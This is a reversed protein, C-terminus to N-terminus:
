FLCDEMAEKIDFLYSMRVFGEMIEITPQTPTLGLCDTLKPYPMLPLGGEEGSGSVMQKIIKSLLDNYYQEEGKVENSGKFVKLHEFKVDADKILVFIRKLLENYGFQMQFFGSNQFYFSRWNKWNKNNEFDWVLDDNVFVGCGFGFSYELRNRERFNVQSVKLNDLKGQMFNKSFGCRIDVQKGPEFEKLIDPIFYSLTSTQILSQAMMLYSKFKTPVMELIFERLSYEKNTYFLGLFIHNIFNEDFVIQVDKRFDDSQSFTPDVRRLTEKFQGHDGGYLESMIGMELYDDQLLMKDSLSSEIKITKMAFQYTFPFHEWM